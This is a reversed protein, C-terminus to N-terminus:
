QCPCGPECPLCAAPEPPAKAPPAVSFTLRISGSLLEFRTDDNSASPAWFVGLRVRGEGREDQLGYQVGLEFRELESLGDDDLDFLGFVPRFTVFPRQTAGDRGFWVSLEPSLVWDSPSAGDDAFALVGTDLALLAGVDSTIYTDFGLGGLVDYQFRDHGGLLAAHLRTEWFETARAPAAVLSWAM